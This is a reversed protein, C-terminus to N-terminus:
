AEVPLILGFRWRGANTGAFIQGGCGAFSEEVWSLGADYVAPGQDTGLRPELIAEPDAGPAGDAEMIVAARYTNIFVSLSVPNGSRTLTAVAVATVAGRLMTVDFVGGEGSDSGLTVVCREAHEALDQKIVAVLDAAGIYAPESRPLRHDRRFRRSAARLRELAARNETLLGRVEEVDALTQEPRGMVEDIFSLTALAVSLPNNIEHAVVTGLWAIARRREAREIVRRHAQSRLGLRVAARLESVDFPQFIYDDAGTARIDEDKYLLLLVYVSALSSSARLRQVVQPGSMQPLQRAIVLVDPVVGRNMLDLAVEGSVVTDVEVRLTLLEQRM